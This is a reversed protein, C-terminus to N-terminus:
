NSTSSIDLDPPCLRFCCSVVDVSKTGFCVGFCLFFTADVEAEHSQQTQVQHYPREIMRGQVQWCTQFCGLSQDLLLWGQSPVFHEKRLVLWPAQDLMGQLAIGTPEM